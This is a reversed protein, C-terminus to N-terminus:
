DDFFGYLFRFLELTNKPQIELKDLRRGRSNNPEFVKADSNQNLYVILDALRQWNRGMRRLADQHTGVLARTQSNLEDVISQYAWRDRRSSQVKSAQYLVGSAVSIDFMIEESSGSGFPKRPNSDGMRLPHQRKNLLYGGAARYVDVVSRPDVTGSLIAQNHKASTSSRREHYQGLTVISHTLSRLDDRLDKHEAISVEKRFRDVMLRMAGLEPRQNNKHYANTVTQLLDITIELSSAYTLWDMRAMVSSFNYSTQLKGAINSGLREGYFKIMHQAPQDNAERVYQRVVEIAVPRTRDNSNLLKYAQNTASLGVKSRDYAACSGMLRAAARLRQADGQRAYYQLLSFVSQPPLVELIRQNNAAESMASDAITRLTSHWRAGELSGFIAVVHSVGRQNHSELSSVASLAQEPSMSTKSFAEQISRIYKLQGEARYIDRSQQSMTKALKDYRESHILLQLLLRPAPQKMNSLTNTQIEDTIEAILNNEIAMPRNNLIKVLEHLVREDILDIRKQYYAQKVFATLASEQVSEDMSRIARMMTNPPAEREPDSLLVLLRKVDSSLPKIFRPTNILGHLKSDDLNQIAMLLLQSPIEENREAKPLVRDIVRGIVSRAQTGVRNINNLYDIVAEDDDEQLINDLAPLASDTLMKQWRKGNPSFPNDRWRVLTEFITVSQGKNLAASMYQYVEDEIDQYQSMTAIVADVYQLDDLALSFNILHRSYMRRQEDSLTPDEGLIKAVSAVEVPMSNAISQDVKARHSAYDLADALNDGSNFRWGATPTLKATERIVAEPDLRMQGVIFRSYDNKDVDGTVQGSAWDYIVVDDMNPVDEMFMLKVRRESDPTNHLLFTVGLRTSAPLLTLLGQIFGMREDPSHPANTIILPTGTVITAILPELNRTNNGTYSMLDLLNDVQQETSLSVDDVQIPSLDDGLMTYSPLPEILYPKLIEFNGALDRAAETPLAIFQYITAGVENIEARALTMPEGRKTRLLGWSMGTTNALAPVKATELVLEVFKDTIGSSKALIRADGTAQNNHILQGYHFYHLADM